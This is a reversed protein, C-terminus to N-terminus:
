IGSGEPVENKPPSPRRKAALGHARAVNDARPTRASEVGILGKRKRGHSVNGYKAQTRDTSQGAAAAVSAGAGLTVKFDAIVQHRCVNPTISVGCEPLAIRGLRWLKKRSANKSHVSIVLRGGSDACRTALYAAAGGAEVPNIKVTTTGTGYRGGHSKVPSITIDLRHASRWEVVIGESWGHPRDGPVFEEPRVPAWLEVALADLEQQDGPENWEALASQWVQEHWDPPLLALVHKKSQAGRKPHPGAMARWRSAPSQLALVGSALPPDSEWAAEIRTLARMLVRAWLLNAAIDGREAAAWCIKCLHSLMLAGGVHLSARRHYYTDLACGARLADFVPERWMKALTDRYAQRTGTSITRGAVRECCDSARKLLDLVKMATGENNDAV